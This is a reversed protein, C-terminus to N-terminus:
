RDEQAINEEVAMLEDTADMDIYEGKIFKSVEDDVLTDVNHYLVFGVDGRHEDDLFTCLVRGDEMAAYDQMAIRVYGYYSNLKEAFARGFEEVARKLAATPVYLSMTRM